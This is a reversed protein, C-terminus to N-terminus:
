KGELQKIEGDAVTVREDATTGMIKRAAIQCAEERGHTPLWVINDVGNNNSVYTMIISTTNSVGPKVWYINNIRIVHYELISAQNFPDQQVKLM